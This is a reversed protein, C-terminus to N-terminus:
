RTLPPISAAGTIRFDHDLWLTKRKTKLILQEGQFTAKVAPALSKNIAAALRVLPRQRAGFLGNEEADNM